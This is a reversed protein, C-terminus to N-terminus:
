GPAPGLSRLRHISGAALGAWPAHDALHLVLTRARRALAAPITFLRLRLRKPEWRRALEDSLALTQMRATFEGAMAVIACWIRNM